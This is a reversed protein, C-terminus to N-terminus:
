VTTNSWFVQSGGAPPGVPGGYRAFDPSIGRVLRWDTRMPDMAIDKLLFATLRYGDQTPEVRQELGGM